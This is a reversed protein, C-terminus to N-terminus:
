EVITIQVRGANVKEELVRVAVEAREIARRREALEADSIKRSKRNTELENKAKAIKEKAEKIKIDGEDVTTALEARRQEGTLRAEAARNQGFERGSQDGKNQGYANGKGSNDTQQGVKKQEQARDRQEREQKGKNDRQNENAAKAKQSKDQGEQNERAEAATRNANGKGQQAIATGTVSVTLCLALGLGINRAINVKMTHKRNFRM